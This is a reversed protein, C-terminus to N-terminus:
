IFLFPTNFVMKTIKEKLKKLQKKFREHSFDCSEQKM